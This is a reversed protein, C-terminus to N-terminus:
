ETVYGGTLESVNKNLSLCTEELARVKESLKYITVRAEALDSFLKEYNPTVRYDGNDCRCLYLKDCEWMRLPSTLTSLTVKLVSAPSFRSLMVACEGEIVSLCTSNLGDSITVCTNDEAGIFLLELYKTPSPDFSILVGQNKIISYTFKM